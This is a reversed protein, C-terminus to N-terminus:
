LWPLDLTSQFALPPFVSSMVKLADFIILVHKIQSAAVFSQDWFIGEGSLGFGIVGHINGNHCCLM